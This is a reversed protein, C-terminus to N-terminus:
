MQKAEKAEDTAEPEAVESTGESAGEVSMNQLQINVFVPKKMYKFFLQIIVSVFITPVNTLVVKTAYPKALYSALSFPKQNPNSIDVIITGYKTVM